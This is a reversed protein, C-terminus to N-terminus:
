FHQGVFATLSVLIRIVYKFEAHLTVYYVCINKM